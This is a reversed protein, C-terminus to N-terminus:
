YLDENVLKESWVERLLDIDAKFEASTQNNGKKLQELVEFVFQDSGQGAWDKQLRMDICSGTKQAFEFRNKSGQIDVSADLLSKNKMTNRILFVGGIIERGSYRLQLEKKRDNNTLAVSDKYGLNYKLAFTTM